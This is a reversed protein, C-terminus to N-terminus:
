LLIITYLTVTNMSSLKAYNLFKKVTFGVDTLFKVSICPITNIADIM